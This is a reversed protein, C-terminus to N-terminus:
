TSSCSSRKRGQDIIAANRTRVASGAARAIADKSYSFHLFRNKAMKPRKEINKDLRPEWNEGVADRVYSNHLFGIKPM